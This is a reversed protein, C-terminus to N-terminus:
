KFQMSCASGGWVDSQTTKSLYQMDKGEYIRRSIDEFHQAGSNTVSGDIGTEIIIKTEKDVSLDVSAAMVHEEALSVIRKFVAKVNIGTPSTWSFERVVEGNRLDLSRAYEKLSGQSLNIEHGDIIITIGTMDPINPLETVEGDSAKNFTGRSSLTESREQIDKRWLTESGLIVMERHSYRRM